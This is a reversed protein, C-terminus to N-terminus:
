CCACANPDKHRITITSQVLLEIRPQRRKETAPVAKPAGIDHLVLLSFSFRSALSDDVCSLVQPGFSRRLNLSVNCRLPVCISEFPQAQHYQYISPCHRSSITTTDRHCNFTKPRDHKTTTAFQVTIQVPSHRPNEIALKHKTINVCSPVLLNFVSGQSPIGNYRSPLHRKQFACAQQYQSVSCLGRFLIAM